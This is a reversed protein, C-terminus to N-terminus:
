GDALARVSSGAENRANVNIALLARANQQHSRCPLDKPQAKRMFGRFVVSLIVSNKPARHDAFARIQRASSSLTKPLAIIPL